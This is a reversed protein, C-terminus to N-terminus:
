LRLTSIRGQPSQWRVFRELTGERLRLVRYYDLIEGQTLDFREGCITIELSLWDPLNPLETVERPAADFLGALYTGPTRDRYAEETAGRTGLYGNALTFLSEYHGTNKSFNAEVLDWRPDFAM